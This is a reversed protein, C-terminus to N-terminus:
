LLPRHLNIKRSLHFFDYRYQFVRAVLGVSHAAADPIGDEAPRGVVPVDRGRGLGLRHLAEEVPRNIRAELVPGHRDAHAPLSELDRGVPNVPVVPVAPM